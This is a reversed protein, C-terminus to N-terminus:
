IKPSYIYMFICIHKNVYTYLHFHRYSMVKPNVQSFKCWHEDHDSKTEAYVALWLDKVCGGCNDTVNAVIHKADFTNRTKPLIAKVAQEFSHCRDHNLRFFESNFLRCQKISDYNSANYM